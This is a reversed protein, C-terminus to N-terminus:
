FLLLCAKFLKLLALARPQLQIEIVSKEPLFAQSETHLDSIKCLKRSLIITLQLLDNKFAIVTM